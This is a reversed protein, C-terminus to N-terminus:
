EAAIFEYDGFYESLAPLIDPIINEGQKQMQQLLKENVALNEPLSAIEEKFSNSFLLWRM